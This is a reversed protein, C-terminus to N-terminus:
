DSTARASEPTTEDELLERMDQLRRLLQRRLYPEIFKELWLVPGHPQLTEHQGLVSGGADARIEYTLHGAFWNSHFDMGLRSPQAIETVVSEIHLWLGPAMRVREHWHTGITTPGSPEKIMKVAARRPIPEADQIDALFAFVEAPQRRIAISLDFRWRHDTRSGVSDRLRPGLPTM